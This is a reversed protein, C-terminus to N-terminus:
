TDGATGHLIYYNGFPAEGVTVITYGDVDVNVHINKERKQTPSSKVNVVPQFQPHFVPPECELPSLRTLPQSNSHCTDHM